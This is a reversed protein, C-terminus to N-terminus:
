PKPASGPAVTTTSPGKTMGHRMRHHMGRGFGLKAGQEFEAFSVVGDGNSDLKKFSEVMRDHRMSTREQKDLKGDGNIDYKELMKQKHEARKAQFDARMTAKEADDLKGDGNADYKQLLAQRGGGNGGNNAAAFTAAGGILTASLALALKIKTLM